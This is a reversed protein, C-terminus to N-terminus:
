QGPSQAAIRPPSASEYNGLEDTVPRASTDFNLRIAAESPTEPIPIIGSSIRSVSGPVLSIGGARVLLPADTSMQLIRVATLCQDKGLTRPASALVRGGKEVLRWRWGTADHFIEYQM